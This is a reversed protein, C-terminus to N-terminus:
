FSPESDSIAALVQHRDRGRIALLSEFINHQHDLHTRYLFRHQSAMAAIGLSELHTMVATFDDGKQRHSEKV